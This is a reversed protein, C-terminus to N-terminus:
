AIRWVYAFVNTGIIIYPVYMCIKIHHASTCIVIYPVHTCIVIHHAGIHIVIHHADTIGFITKPQFEENLKYFM